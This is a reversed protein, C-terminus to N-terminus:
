KVEYMASGSVPMGQESIGEAVIRIKTKPDANYWTITAEGKDNTTINPEWHITTRFDPKTDTTEYRPAYFERAEDYGNISVNITGLGQRDLAGPKLTLFVDFYDGLVNDYINQAPPPPSVPEWRPGQVIGDRNRNHIFEISTIRDLPINFFDMGDTNQHYQAPTVRKKDPGETSFFPLRPGFQGAVDKSDHYDVILWPIMGNFVVIDPVQAAREAGPFKALMYDRLYKLPYDAKTIKFITDSLIRGANLKRITVERLYTTDALRFKASQVSRQLVQANIAQYYAANPITLKQIPYAAATLTDVWISGEPKGKDDAATIAIKKNGFLKIDDVLFKGASDTQTNFFKSGEAAWATLTIHANPMPKNLWVQRVRGSVTIGREAPYNVKIASDALRKWIFDRWGQTLLLLDLQQKRRPNKPDFYQGPNDIDGKIESSLNLYTIIDQYNAPAIGADVAALSLHAKVPLNDQNTTRVTVTVKGKPAYTARDTLIMLKAPEKSEVYILRECQPKGSADYLIVASIGAPFGATNVTVTSQLQKLTLQASYIVKGKNKIALLVPKGQQQDLTVPNTNISTKFLSDAHRIFLSFGSLLATPLPASLTTGDGFKGEASYKEGPIDSLIFSGMGSSDCAFVAVTKGSATLINGTAAVGKGINNEARFAVMGTVGEIIAGGEPFFRIIAGPPGSAPHAPTKLATQSITSYVQVKKEFIFNVGFNRMWSTYARIRYTGPSISDSLHFDGNGLGDDLRITKREIVEAEPSILEIYLNNSSNFLENSQGNVLYAKFWIDDGNAYVERDTHLYIKEFFLKFSAPPTIQAISNFTILTFFSVIILRAFNM